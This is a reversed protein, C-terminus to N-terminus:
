ALALAGSIRMFVFSTTSLSVPMFHQAFKYFDGVWSPTAREPGLAGARPGKRVAWDATRKFGIRLLVQVGGCRM